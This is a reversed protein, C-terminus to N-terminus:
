KSTYCQQDIPNFKCHRGVWAKLNGDFTTTLAFGHLRLRQMFKIIDLNHTLDDNVIKLKQEYEDYWPSSCCCFIKNCFADCEFCSHRPMPVSDVTFKEKKKKGCGCCGQSCPDSKVLSEYYAKSPNWYYYKSALLSNLNLDAFHQLWIRGLFWLFICLGGTEGFLSSLSDSKRSSVKKIDNM